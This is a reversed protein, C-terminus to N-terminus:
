LTGLCFKDDCDIAPAVSFVDENSTCDAAAAYSTEAGDVDGEPDGGEMLSAGILYNTGDECYFYCDGTPDAASVDCTSTGPPEPMSSSALFDGLTGSGCAASLMGDWTGAANPPSGGENICLENASQLTRIDAQRKTDRSRQRATNLSVIALTSLLGIIAIVVLLEILTFGKKNKM